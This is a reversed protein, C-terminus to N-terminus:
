FENKKDSHVHLPLENWPFINEPGFSLWNFTQSDILKGIRGVVSLNSFWLLCLTM